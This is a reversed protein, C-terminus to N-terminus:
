SNKKQKLDQEPEILQKIDEETPNDFMTEKVNTEATVNSKSGNVGVKNQLDLLNQKQKILMMQYKM